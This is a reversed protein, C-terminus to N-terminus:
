PSRGALSCGFVPAEVPVGRGRRLRDLVARAGASDGEHARSPTIGGHFVESGTPDYVIVQGSTVAGFRRAEVGDPDAVVRLSSIAAATKWLSTEAAEPGVFLAYASVPEVARALIQELERLSARSCPCDPHILIVLTSLGPTTQLRSEVPWHPPPTAGPGPAAGRAGARRLRRRARAALGRGAGDV